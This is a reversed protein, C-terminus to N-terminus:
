WRIVWKLKGNKFNYTKNRITIFDWKFNNYKM